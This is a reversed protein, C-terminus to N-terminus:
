ARPPWHWTGPKKSEDHAVSTRWRPYPSSPSASAWSDNGGDLKLELNVREDPNDGFVAVVDAARVEGARPCSEELVYFVVRGLTPKM